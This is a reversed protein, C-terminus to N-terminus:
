SPALLATCGLRSCHVRMKLIGGCSGGSCRPQGHAVVGTARLLGALPSSLSQAGTQRAKASGCTGSEKERTAAGSSCNELQLKKSTSLV